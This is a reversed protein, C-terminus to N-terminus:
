GTDCERLARRRVPPSRATTFSAVFVCREGAAIRAAAHTVQGCFFLATGMPPRVVLRPPVHSALESTSSGACESQARSSAKRLDDLSWFSTGGGSYERDSSLNFLVTLAENDEHPLFSGGTGYVNIAPEGPSYCLQDNGFFSAIQDGGFLLNSVLPLAEELASLARLLLAECLMKCDADLM